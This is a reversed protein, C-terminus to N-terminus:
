HWIPGFYPPRRPYRMQAPHTRNFDIVLAGRWISTTMSRRANPGGSGKTGMM